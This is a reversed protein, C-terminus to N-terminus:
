TQTFPDDLNPLRDIHQLPAATPNTIRAIAARALFAGAAEARSPVTHVMPQAWGVFSPADHVVVDFDSGAEIGAAAFGSLAALCSAASAFIWGDGAGGGVAIEQVLARIHGGPSDADFGSVLELEVDYTDAALRAGELLHAAAYQDASPAVLRLSQRGKWVLRAVAEAGLQAHDVDFFAHDASWRSRGHTVFPHGIDMLHRVRPDDLTVRDLILADAMQTSVVYKLQALPDGDPLSPAISLAYDSARLGAAAARVFLATQTMLEPETSMLMTVVHSRGTRLRIGAHNPVYGIEDAVQRVRDKTAQSIDRAGKLARSVTPVALGTIGAITKLTPRKTTDM